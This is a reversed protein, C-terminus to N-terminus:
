GVMMLPCLAQTNSILYKLVGVNLTSHTPSSNRTKSASDVLHQRNQWGALSTPYPFTKGGPITESSRPLQNQSDQTLKNLPSVYIGDTVKYSEGVGRAKFTLYNALREGMNETTQDEPVSNKNSFISSVPEQIQHLYMM